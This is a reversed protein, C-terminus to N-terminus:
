AEFDVFASAAIELPARPAIPPAGPLAVSPQASPRVRAPGQQVRLMSQRSEAELHLILDRRGVRDLTICPGICRAYRTSTATRPATAAAARSGLRDARTSAVPGDGSTAPAETSRIRHCTADGEPVLNFAKWLLQVYLWLRSTGLALCCRSTLPVWWAVRM